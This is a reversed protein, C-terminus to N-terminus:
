QKKMGPVIIHGWNEGTKIRHLAMESVGYQKALIKMRTKRNPDLLKQKLLRVQTSNLKRGLGAQRRKLNSKVINPSTKTHHLLEIRTAWRLNDARNNSRNRDIFLVYEQGPKPPPLFYEAVIKRLFIHKHYVVGGAKFRYTIIKYGKISSLSLLRGNELKDSYSAMRGLNSVAYHKRLPDPMRVEKWEEGPLSNIM